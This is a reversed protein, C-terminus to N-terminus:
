ETVAATAAPEPTMERVEGVGKGTELDEYPLSMVYNVIHWIAEDSPTSETWGLQPDQIGALIDKFGNMPTGKIGSHIRRYIDIPRRGGRYIGSRLNRPQVVHGWTDHLGPENQNEEVILTQPGNGLASTGHCDACKVKANLFLTRGIEISEPTMEPRESAPVVVYEETEAEAWMGGVVVSAEDPLFAILEDTLKDTVESKLGAEEALLTECRGRMALWRVYEVISVLENSELLRFSPMYTGPIGYEIIRGLDDRSPPHATDTSSFKFIGKRYDRPLPNLYQATPGWGDGSVGHCHQCHEAYLLRGHELVQGPEIALRTGTAPTTALPQKLTITQTAPDYDAVTPLESEGDLVLTEALWGLKQGKEVPWTEESWEVKLGVVADGETVTESVTGIAGSHRLPLVEWIKMNTPTGFYHDLTAVVAAQREADLSQVQENSAFEPDLKSCGVASVLMLPLLLRKM